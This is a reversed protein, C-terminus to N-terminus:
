LSMWSCAVACAIQSDTRAEMVSASRSYTVANRMMSMSIALASCSETSDIRGERPQVSEKRAESEDFVGDHLATKVLRSRADAPGGSAALEEIRTEVRDFPPVSGGSIRREDGLELAERLEGPSGAGSTSM